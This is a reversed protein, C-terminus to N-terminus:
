RAPPIPDDNADDEQTLAQHWPTAPGDDSATGPARSGEEPAIMERKALAADILARMEDGRAPTDTPPEGEADNGILRGDALMLALGIAAGHDFLAAWIPKFPDVGFQDITDSLNFEIMWMALDRLTKRDPLSAAERDVIRSVLTFRPLETVEIQALYVLKLPPPSPPASTAFGKAEILATFTPAHETEARFRVGAPAEDDYDWAIMRGDPLIVMTAFLQENRGFIALKATWQRGSVSRGRPMEDLGLSKKPPEGDLVALVIGGINAKNQASTPWHDYALFVESAYLFALDIKLSHPRGPSPPRDDPAMVTVTLDGLYDLSDAETRDDRPKAASRRTAEGM